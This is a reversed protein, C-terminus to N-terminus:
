IPGVALSTNGSPSRAMKVTTDCVPSRRYGALFADHWIKFCGNQQEDSSTDTPCDAGEGASTAADDQKSCDSMTMRTFVIAGTIVM